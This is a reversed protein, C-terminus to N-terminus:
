EFIYTKKHDSSITEQTVSFSVFDMVDDDCLWKKSGFLTDLETACSHLSLSLSVWLRVSQPPPSSEIFCASYKKILGAYAPMSLPPPPPSTIEAEIKPDETTGSMEM